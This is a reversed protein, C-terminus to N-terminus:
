NYEIKVECRRGLANEACPMIKSAILSEDFFNKIKPSSLRVTLVDGSIRASSGTLIGTLPGYSKEVDLVINLWKRRDLENPENQSPAPEKVPSPAPKPPEPESWPEPEPENEPESEPLFSQQGDDAAATQKDNDRMFADFDFPEDDEEDSSFANAYSGGTQDRAFGEFPFDDEQESVADEQESVAAEQESM